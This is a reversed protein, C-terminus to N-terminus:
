GSIYFLTDFCPLASSPCQRRSLHDKRLTGADASPEREPRTPIRRWTSLSFSILSKSSTTPSIPYCKGTVALDKILRDSDSAQLLDVVQLGEYETGIVPTMDRHTYSDLSGSYEMPRTCRTRAQANGGRISSSNIHASPM